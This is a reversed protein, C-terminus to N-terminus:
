RLVHRSLGFLSESSRTRSVTVTKWLSLLVAASGGFSLMEQMPPDLLRTGLAAAILGRLLRLLAAFSSAVVLLLPPHRLLNTSNVLPDTSTPRTENHRTSM